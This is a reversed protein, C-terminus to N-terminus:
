SLRVRFFFPSCFLSVKLGYFVGLKSYGKFIFESSTKGFARFGHGADRFMQGLRKLAQARRYRIQWPVSM